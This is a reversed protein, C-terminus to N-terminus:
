KDELDKVTFSYSEGDILVTFRAKVMEITYKDDSEYEIRISKAMDQILKEIEEAKELGLEEIAKKDM